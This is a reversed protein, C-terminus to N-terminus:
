TNKKPEENKNKPHLRPITKGSGEEREEEQKQEKKKRRKPSLHKKRSKKRRRLKNTQTRKPLKRNKTKRCRKEKRKKGKKTEEIRLRQYDTCVTKGEEKSLNRKQKRPKNEPKGM